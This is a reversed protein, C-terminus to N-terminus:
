VLSPITAFCSRGLKRMEERDEYGVVINAMVEGTTCIRLQLNRLWGEHAKIDYFSLGNQLGYDRILKRLGNTPEEQLYCTDIDVVKDFFVRQM